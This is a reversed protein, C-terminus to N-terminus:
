IHILSLIISTDKSKSSVPTAKQLTPNKVARVTPRSNSSVSAPITKTRKTQEQKSQTVEPKRKENTGPSLSIFMLGNGESEESEKAAKKYSDLSKRPKPLTEIKRSNYTIMSRRPKLSKREQQINSSSEKESSNNPKESENTPDDSDKKVIINEKKITSSQVNSKSISDEEQITSM